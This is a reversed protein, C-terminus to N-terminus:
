KKKKVFYIGGGIPGSVDGGLMPDVVDVGGGMIGLNKGPSSKKVTYSEMMQDVERPSLGKAFLEERKATYEEATLPVLEKGKTKEEKQKVPTPKNGMNFVKYDQPNEYNKVPTSKFPNTMKFKNSQGKKKFYKGPM